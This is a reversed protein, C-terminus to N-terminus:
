LFFFLNVEGVTSYSENTVHEKSDADGDDHVSHLSIDEDNPATKTINGIQVNNQNYLTNTSHM